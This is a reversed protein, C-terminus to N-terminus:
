SFKCFCQGLIDGFFIEQLPTVDSAPAKLLCFVLLFFFAFYVLFISQTIHM